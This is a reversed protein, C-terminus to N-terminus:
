EGNIKKTLKEIDDEVFLFVGDRFIIKTIDRNYEENVHERKIYLVQEPNIIIQVKSVPSTVSIFKSM